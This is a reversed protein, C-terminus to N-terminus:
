MGFTYWIMSVDTHIILDEHMMISEYLRVKLRCSYLKCVNRIYRARIHGDQNVPILMCVLSNILVHFVDCLCLLLSRLRRRYSEGPIRAFVLYMFEVLSVGEAWGLYAKHNRHINLVINVLVRQNVPHLVFFTVLEQHIM